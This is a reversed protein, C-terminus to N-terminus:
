HVDRMMYVWVAAATIHKQARAHTDGRRLSSCGDVSTTHVSGLIVNQLGSVSAIHHEYLMTSARFRVLVPAGKIKIHTDYVSLGIADGVLKAFFVALMLPVLVQVNRLWLGDPNDHSASWWRVRNVCANSATGHV